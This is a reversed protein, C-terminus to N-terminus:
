EAAIARARPIVVTEARAQSAADGRLAGYIGDLFRRDELMERFEAACYERVDEPAGRVDEVTEARGDLLTVVDGFDRSGYYDSQGRGRFAELKTALFLVPAIVAVSRGSPLDHELPERVVTDYWRSAFGLVDPDSPMVDLILPSADHQWRCIVGSDQDESFGQERLREEFHAFHGRSAVGVVVDVDLTPRPPPAGSDTIWVGVTAGGVFVVEPVLPGLAAAAADLMADTM